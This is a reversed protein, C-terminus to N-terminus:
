IQREGSSIGGGKGVAECQLQSLGIPVISSKNNKCDLVWHQLSVGHSPFSGKRRATAHNSTRYGAQCHNERGYKRENRIETRVTLTGATSDERLDYASIRPSYGVIDYVAYRVPMAFHELARSLCNM